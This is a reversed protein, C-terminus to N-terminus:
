SQKNQLMPVFRYQGHESRDLSGDPMKEIRHMIQTEGEGIPVVLLGGPRLQDLLATPLNPAGCTVLVRDFPAYAPLGVYGDGYFLKATNRMQTLMLTARKFLTRQREISFVKCGLATLVATQYGSGTGIELVKMGPSLELLTSQRAVTYPQSITQDVGIPFAKDEYAFQLFTSDMFYHRPVKYMAELVNETIGGRTRLADLM